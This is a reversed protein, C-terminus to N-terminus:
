KNHLADLATTKRHRGLMNHSKRYNTYCEMSHFLTAAKVLQWNRFPHFKKSCGLCQLLVYPLRNEVNLINFCDLCYRNKQKSEGYTVLKGCGRCRYKVERLKELKKIEKINKQKEGYKKAYPKNTISIYIQRVRERTTIGFMNSVQQLTYDGSNLLNVIKLNRERQQSEHHKWQYTGCYICKKAGKQIIKRCGRCARTNKAM